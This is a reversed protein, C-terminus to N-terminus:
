SLQRQLCRQIESAVSDETYPKTMFVTVGAELAHARHKQSFRSTIMIIPIEAFQPDARMAKALEIGNMRPMELDAIVLAPKQRRARDLAQVGDGATIVQLGIDKLFLEMSRRVSVSDDVVLCIPQTSEDIPLDVQSGASVNGPSALLVPLDIVPAISGEGLVALGIVGPGCAVWPPLARVLVNRAQSLAPSVVGCRQGDAARVVLVMADASDSAFVHAPLGLLEPLMRVPVPGQTTLAIREGQANEALSRSALIEDIDHAALALCYRPDHMVMVPQNAMTVPIDISFRTGAGSRSDLKIQGRLKHVTQQVVDLGIGRGSLQTVAQRTSFGPRFIYQALAHDDHASDSAAAPLGLAAARALVAQSDIGAGDDACEIRVSSVDRVFRLSILGEVPKGARTRRDAAEIGHDVANRLLHTLSDVLAFLMDGDLETQEGHVQLRVAKGAMRAAQRVARNLRPVMNRVPVLRTRHVLERMEVQLREVQDSLAKLESLHLDLNRDIVRHDAGAEAIRRSVTHLDNYEDLELPDFDDQNVTRGTMAVGRVDVLRELEGSLSQLGENASRLSMRTTDIQGIHTQMQALKISAESMADLMREMLAIPVQLSDPAAPAIVGADGSAVAPLPAAASETMSDIATETTSETATEITSDITSDTSSMSGSRIAAQGDSEVFIQAAFAPPVYEPPVYEPPVYEPPLHKTPLYKPSEYESALDVPTGDAPPSDVGDFNFRNIWGVLDELVQAMDSPEPVLGLLAENLDSLADAARALCDLLGDPARRGSAQLVQLLDELQHTLTAVGRVGVTNAAGKLTHAIRQADALKETRGARVQDIADAFEDCLKPMERKLQALVALDADVPVAISLEAETPLTALGPQHRSAILRVRSLDDALLRGESGLWYSLVSALERATSLEPLEFYSKLALPLEVLARHLQDAWEGSRPARARLGTAAATLAAALPRLGVQDLANGILELDAAYDEIFAGAEASNAIVPQEALLVPLVKAQLAAAEEALLALEDRALEISGDAAAANASHVEIRDTVPLLIPPANIQGILDADRELREVIMDAFQPPLHSLKPWQGLQDVLSRVRLGPLQGACFSLLDNVWTEILARGSPDNTRLGQKRLFPAVIASLYGVSRLEQDRATQACADIANALEASVDLDPPSRLLPELVGMAAAQLAFADAESM